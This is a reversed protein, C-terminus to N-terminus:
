LRKKIEETFKEEFLDYMSQDFLCLIIKVLTDSEPDSYMEIYKYIATIMIEACKKPPFGYVGASIAPLAVSKLDKLRIFNLSNLVADELLEEAKFPTYQHYIPGAAHIVFKALLKGAGTIVAEGTSIPALYNCEVQISPGGKSRIAGAVGSGLVLQTNAANVIADVRLGTIDGKALEVVFRGLQHKKM